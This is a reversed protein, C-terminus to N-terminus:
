FYRPFLLMSKAQLNWIRGGLERNYKGERFKLLSWKCGHTSSPNKGMSVFLKSTKQDCVADTGNVNILSEIIM